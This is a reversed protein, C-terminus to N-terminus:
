VFAINSSVMWSYTFLNQTGTYTHRYTTHYCISSFYYFILPYTCVTERPPSRPTAYSHMHTPTDLHPTSRPHSYLLRGRRLCALPYCSPAPTLPLPLVLPTFLRFLSSFFALHSGSCGFRGSLSLERCTLLCRGGGHRM